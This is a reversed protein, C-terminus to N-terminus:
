DDPQRAAAGSRQPAPQHEQHAEDTRPASACGRVRARVIEAVRRLAVERTEESGSTVAPLSALVEGVAIGPKQPGVQIVPRSPHQFGEIFVVALPAGWMQEAAASALFVLRDPHDGPAAVRLVTEDPGGMVVVAAGAAAMRASDSGATDLDFGHAAHKVAAARIGDEVLRRVLDVIVTTKGGGSEGVIGIVLPGLRPSAITLRDRDEESDLMLATVRSGAPLPPTGAPLLVMANAGLLSALDGASGGVLLEATPGGPGPPGVRAWLARTRDTARPFGAALAVEQLPRIAHRRGALRMLLPRAMLHFAALCAVPTGSLGVVWSRGLRGAFFPGGPKLDVRGVIRQAGLDLWTRHVADHRGISVGGTSVVVDYREWLSAFAGRMADPADRVIGHYEVDCGIGRLLGAVTVANSNFVRGPPLPVAGESADVLEDGTAVLAVRPRRHVRLTGVGAAALAGAAAPSVASGKTVLPVGERILEGPPAIHTKGPPREVWIQDGVRRVGELPLVRDGGAPMAAGTTIVWAEGRAPGHGPLEGMRAAGTIPLVAPRGPSIGRIDADHCLYGDMAPRAFHPVAAPALVDEAAVRGHAEPVPVLDVALPVAELLRDVADEVRSVRRVTRRLFSHVAVPAKM